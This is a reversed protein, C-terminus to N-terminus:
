IFAKYITDIKNTNNARQFLENVYMYNLKNLLTAILTPGSLFFLHLLLQTLVRDFSVHACTHSVSVYTAPKLM